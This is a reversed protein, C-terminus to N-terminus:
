FLTTSNKNNGKLNPNNAFQQLMQIGPCVIHKDSVIQDLADRYGSFFEIEFKLM